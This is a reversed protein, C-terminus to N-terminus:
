PGTSVEEIAVEKSTQLTTTSCIRRSEAGGGLRGAM